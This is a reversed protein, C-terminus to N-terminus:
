GCLGCIESESLISRHINQIECLLAYNADAILQVSEPLHNYCDWFDATTHHSFVALHNPQM